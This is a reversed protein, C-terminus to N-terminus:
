IRGAWFGLSIGTLVGMIYMFAGFDVYVPSLLAEKVRNM